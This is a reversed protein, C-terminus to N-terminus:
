RTATAAPESGLRAQRNRAAAASPGRPRAPTRRRGRGPAVRSRDGAGARGVHSGRTAMGELRRRPHPIARLRLESTVGWRQHSERAAQPAPANAHGARQEAAPHQRRGDGHSVARHVHRPLAARHCCHAIHAADASTAVGEIEPARREFAAATAHVSEHTRRLRTPPMSRQAPNTTSPFRVAKGHMEDARSPRRGCCSNPPRHPSTARAASDASDASNRLTAM